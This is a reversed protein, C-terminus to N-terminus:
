RPRPAPLMVRRKRRSQNVGASPAVLGTVERQHIKKKLGEQLKACGRIVLVAVAQGRQIVRRHDPAVGAATLQQEVLVRGHAALVLVAPVLDVLHAPSGEGALRATPAPTCPSCGETPAM